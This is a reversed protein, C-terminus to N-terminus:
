TRNALEEIAIVVSSASRVVSDIVCKTDDALQTTKDIHSVAGNIASMSSASLRQINDVMDKIESTSESSRQSLKRVEDAVVAFGRGHEGARAAEIAANLALLNTQEAIETISGVIATIKDTFTKLESSSAEATNLSDNMAKLESLTANTNDLGHECEANTKVSADYAIKVRQKEEEQAIVEQTIDSAMKVVGTVRGNDDFIPNYTAQLWVVQGARNLRKVRGSFPKGNFLEGWFRKYEQSNALEDPCLSRHSIPSSHRTVNPEIKMTQAFLGNYSVINANLDFEVRAMSRDLADIIAKDKNQSIVKETIDSALMTISSVKGERKVVIYSAQMYIPEGSCSKRKVEGSFTGERLLQNWFERYEMSNESLDKEYRADNRLADVSDYGLLAIYNDNASLIEGHESLALTAMSSELLDRYQILTKNDETLTEIQAHLKKNFM